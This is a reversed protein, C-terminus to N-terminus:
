YLLRATDPLDLVLNRESQLVFKEMHLKEDPIIYIRKYKWSNECDKELYRLAFIRSFIAPHVRVTIAPPNTENILDYLAQKLRIIMFEESYVYSDGGCYPCDQLLVSEIMSRTKKRTLEVLGLSTMGVVTTKVTDKALSQKLADLVAERNEVLEMDIFDIIVIGGINRLRLQRAIEKAALVNTNFVTEELNKEGVYKGTNVDIVTLAETRDIVLYAGNKLMVKRKLLKEIQPMFGYFATMDEQGDYFELEYHRQRLGINLPDLLYDYLKVDNTIVEAVDSRLLDRVARSGLTAEAYVVDFFNAKKYTEVIEKWRRHLEQMEFEMEEKSASAAETRVVYGFKPDPRLEQVLSTLRERESEDAIKRSIGIFDSQPMMVLVRGPLSVNLTIRAGKTGFQDKVVQCLVADGEKYRSFDQPKEGEIDQPDLLTDGAFLFANKELGINVFAAQMGPLINIIKGKYINGVLKNATKREIYYEVLEGDETLCVQTRSPEVYIYLKKM